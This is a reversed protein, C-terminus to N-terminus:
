NLENEILFDGVKSPDVIGQYSGAYFDLDGDGDMDFLEAGYFIATSMSGPAWFASGELFEGQTGGQAGGQNVFLTPYGVFPDVSGFFEHPLVVVDVDGDLDVDGTEINLRIGLAENFQDPFGAPDDVFHGPNAAGLNRLYDASDAPTVSLHSNAVVVDLWGDGDADFLEAGSSKDGFGNHMAPLRSASEDAYSGQGDNILLLNNGGLAADTRCVFIDLDGDRDVDALDVSSSVDDDNNFAATAFSFDEVFFGGHNIFLALTQVSGNPNHQLGDSMVVDLDGDGDVDGASLSLALALSSDLDQIHIFPGGGTGMYFSTTPDLETGGIVFDPNGDGNFDGTCLAWSSRQPAFAFSMDTWVGAGDNQYLRVGGPATMISGTDSTLIDLDGDRDYDFTAVDTTGSLSAFTPLDSTADSWSADESAEGLLAVRGSALWHGDRHRVGCQAFITVGSYGQARIPVSFSYEGAADTSGRFVKTSTVLQLPNPPPNVIAAPQGFVVMAPQNAETSRVLVDVDTGGYLGSIELQPVEASQAALNTLPLLALFATVITKM